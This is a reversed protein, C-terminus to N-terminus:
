TGKLLKPLAEPGVGDVKQGRKLADRLADFFENMREWTSDAPFQLVIGDYRAMLPKAKKQRKGLLVEVRDELTELSINGELFPKAVERMQEPSPLRGLAYRARRRLRPDERLDLPLNLGGLGKTIRSAMAKPNEPDLHRALEANTWGTTKLMAEFMEGEEAETWDKRLKNEQYQERLQEWENLPRDMLLVPVKELGAIGAADLRTGGALAQLTGDPLRICPIPSRIGNQRIDAALKDRHARYKPTTRDRKDNAIFRISARPVYGFKQPDM